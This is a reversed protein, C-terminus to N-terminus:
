RLIASHLFHMKSPTFAIIIGSLSLPKLRLHLISKLQHMSFIAMQRTPLRIFVTSSRCMFPDFYKWSIFEVLVKIYRCKASGQAMTSSSLAHLIDQRQHLDAIFLELYRNGSNQIVWHIPPGPIIKYSVIFCRLVTVSHCTEKGGNVIHSIPASFIRNNM